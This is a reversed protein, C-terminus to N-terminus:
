ENINNSFDIIEVSDNINCLCVAPFLPKDIPINTYSDGKDENNIIFKLTRKEMNMIVIIEDNVKSLNTNKNSYNFPPGSYLTSNNCYFYWGCNDYISSNIDFDIPAVGVMINKHLTKLIKIKWKHEKSKELENECITGMWGIKGTKTMINEKEGSIEYKRNENINNPCKRFKFNNYSLKGFENINEIFKNISNEEPIFKMKIKNNKNVKKINENIMNIDKINNEINICDNILSNLENNNWEKEMKKGKELSIKIKNPLKEGEKIINEDGYFENFKNDVELLLSDERNNLTNRIKTFINQIKLKLEEKDENIKIFLKKLENISEELKKSLEELCNINDKLKNKKEDKIKEIRCISCDKHEGNEEDKINTICQACCLINHTKCFYELKNIHNNKKCIGTFISKIDDKLNFTQHIPLLSSHMKECKNCMYIECKQCYIIANIDLHEKSSCKKEM